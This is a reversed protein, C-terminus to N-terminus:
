ESALKSDFGVWDEDETGDVLGDIYKRVVERSRTSGMKTKKTAYKTMSMGVDGTYVLFPINVLGASSRFYSIIERSSQPDKRDEVRAQDSLIRIKTGDDNAKLM